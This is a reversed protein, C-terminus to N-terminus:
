RDEKPAGWICADYGPLAAIAWSRLQECFQRASSREWGDHECSQYAYCAISMLVQLPDFRTHLARHAGYYVDEETDDRYCERVSRQNETWLDQGLRDAQGIDYSGRPHLCRAAEVLFAIHEREVLYASM